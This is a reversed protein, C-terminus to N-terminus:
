DAVDEVPRAIYSNTAKLYYTVYGSGLYMGWARAASYETSTWYLGKLPSGGADQLAENIVDIFAEIIHAQKKTFMKKGEEALLRTAEFWNKRDGNFADHLAIIFDEDGVHVRVGDPMGADYNIKLFENTKM